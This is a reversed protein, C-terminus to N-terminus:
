RRSAARATTAADTPDYRRIALLPNAEKQSEVPALLDCLLRQYASLTRHTKTVSCGM